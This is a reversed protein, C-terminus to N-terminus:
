KNVGAAIVAEIDIHQFYGKDMGLTGYLQYSPDFIDQDLWFVKGKFGPPLIHAPNTPGFFCTMKSEANMALGLHMAGCDTTYFQDAKGILYASQALNLTGAWNFLNDPNGLVSYYSAYNKKDVASGVLIVPAKLILKSLLELIKSQPLMRIGGSEYQNNGGSNVVVIFKVLNLDALKNTIYTIDTEPVLFDLDLDTYDPTAITSAQLLDLYYCGHYRTVDNYVVHKTLLYQSIKERAYGIARGGILRSLLNLQWNKGLLFVYDYKGRVNSAFRIFPLVGAATFVKEDLAIVNDIYPNNALVNSFPKALCYDIQVKSFSKKLQRVLPTTLLIDGLAGRKILLIKLM